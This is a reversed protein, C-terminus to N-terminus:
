ADGATVDDLGGVERRARTPPRESVLASRAAARAAVPPKETAYRTLSSFALEPFFPLTTMVPRIEVRPPKAGARTLRKVYRSEPRIVPASPFGTAPAVTTVRVTSRSKQVNESGESASPM